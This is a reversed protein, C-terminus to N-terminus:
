LLAHHIKQHEAHMDHRQETTEHQVMNGIFRESDAAQTKSCTSVIMIEMMEISDLGLSSDGALMSAAFSKLFFTRRQTLFDCSIHQSKM